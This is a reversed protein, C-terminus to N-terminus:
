AGQILAVYFSNFPEQSVTQVRVGVAGEDDLNRRMLGCSHLIM